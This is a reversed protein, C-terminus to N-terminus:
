EHQIVPLKIYFVAYENEKSQFTISGGLRETVSKAIYLGLGTGEEGLGRINGARYLKSFIYQRSDEPIGPGYNKIACEIVDEKHEVSIEIEGGRNSYKVANSLINDFVIQLLQTDASITPIPEKYTRQVVLGREATLPEFEKVKEDIVSPLHSFSSFVELTGLEIRSVNLLTSVLKIMRKSAKSIEAIHERAGEDMQSQYQRELLELNLAIISLPTRLQHSALSIFENKARDLEYESTSERFVCVAGAVEGEICIPSVTITAPFRQKTKQNLLYFPHVTSSFTVSRRLVLAEELPRRERPIKNGQADILPITEYVNKGIVKKNEIGLMEQARPNIHTIVRETDIVYAGEGISAFIAEDRALLRNLDEVKPNM